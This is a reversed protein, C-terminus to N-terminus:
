YRGRGYSAAYDAAEEELQDLRRVEEQCVACPEGASRPKMWDACLCCRIARTAPITGNLMETIETPM